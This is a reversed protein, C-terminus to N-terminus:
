ARIGVTECARPALLEVAAGYSEGQASSANGQLSRRYVGQFIAGMRFLVFAIFWPWDTPTARGTRECYTERALYM